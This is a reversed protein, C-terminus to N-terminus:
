LACRHASEETHEWFVFLKQSFRPRGIVRDLMNVKTGHPDVGPLCSSELPCQSCPHAPCPLSFFFPCWATCRIAASHCCPCQQLSTAIFSGAPGERRLIDPRASETNLIASTTSIPLPTLAQTAAPDPSPPASSDYCSSTQNLHLYRTFFKKLLVVCDYYYM